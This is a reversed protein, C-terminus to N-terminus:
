QRLQCQKVAGSPDDLNAIDEVMAVVVVKTKGVLMAKSRLDGSVMVMEKGDLAVM